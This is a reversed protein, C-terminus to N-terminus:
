GAPCSLDVPPPAGLAAFLERATAWHAAAAESRRALARRAYGSQGALSVALKRDGRYSRHLEMGSISRLGSM